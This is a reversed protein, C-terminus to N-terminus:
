AIIGWIIIKAVYIIGNKGLLRFVINVANSLHTWVKKKLWLFLINLILAFM